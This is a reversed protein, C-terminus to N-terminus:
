HKELRTIVHKGSDARLRGHVQDGPKIGELVKADEVRFEMKMAKMLGPIDEHDLTVSGKDPAVAVVKGKVDYQKDTAGKQKDTGGGACGALALPLSLVILGLWHVTKM